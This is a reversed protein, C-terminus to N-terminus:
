TARKRIKAGLWNKVWLGAGVAGWIVGMLLAFAPVDGWSRPAQEIFPMALAITGYVLAGGVGWRLVFGIFRHGIPRLADYVVGALYFGVFYSPIVGALIRGVEAWRDLSLQGRLLWAASLVIALLSFAGGLYLAMRRGNGAAGAPPRLPYPLRSMLAEAGTIVRAMLPLPLEPLPPGHRDAFERLARCTACGEAHATLEELRPLLEDDKAEEVARDLDSAVDCSPLGSAAVVAERAKLAARWQLEQAIRRPVKGAGSEWAEVAGIPMGWEAAVDRISLGLAERARSFDAATVQAKSRFRTAM